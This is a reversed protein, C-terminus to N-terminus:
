VAAEQRVLLEQAGDAEIHEVAWRGRRAAVAETHAADASVPISALHTDM